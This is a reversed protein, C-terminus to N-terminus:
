LYSRLRRALTAAISQLIAPSQYALIQLDHEKLVLCTSPEAARVTASRSGHTLWAIEGFVEGAAISGKFTGGRVETELRGDVLIFIDNNLEGQWVLVEGAAYYVRCSKRGLDMVTEPPLTRFLDLGDFCALIDYSIRVFAQATGEHWAWLQRDAQTPLDEPVRVPTPWRSQAIAQPFLARFETGVMGALYNLPDDVRDDWIALVDFNVSRAGAGSQRHQLELYKLLHSRYRKYFYRALCPSDAARAAASAQYLARIDRDSAAGPAEIPLYSAEQGLYDRALEHVYSAETSKMALYVWGTQYYVYRTPDSTYNENFSSILADRRELRENVVEALAGSVRLATTANASDPAVGQVLRFNDVETTSLRDSAALAHVIDHYSDVASEGLGLREGLEKVTRELFQVAFAREAPPIRHKNLAGAMRNALQEELWSDKGFLGARHRLHHTMEHAVIFPIFIVLFRMLEENDQACLMQRFMLLQLKGTPARLDPVSLYIQRDEFAYYCLMGQSSHLALGDDCDLGYRRFECRFRDFAAQGIAFLDPLDQGATM